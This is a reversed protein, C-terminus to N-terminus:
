RILVVNRKKEGNGVTVTEYAYGGEAGSIASSGEWSILCALYYNGAPLDSFCFKGKSDARVTKHYKLSRADPPGLKKHGKVVANFWEKSYTTIPTLQVTAHEGLQPDGGPTRLLAHGCIEATGAESYPEYESENFDATRQYQCGSCLFVISILVLLSLPNM